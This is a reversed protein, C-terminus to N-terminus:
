KNDVKTGFKEQFASSLTSNPTLTLNHSFRAPSPRTDTSLGFNFRRKAKLYQKLSEQDSDELKLGTSLMVKAGSQM